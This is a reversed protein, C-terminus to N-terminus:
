RQTRCHQTKLRDASCTVIYYFAPITFMQKYHPTPTINYNWTPSEALIFILDIERTRIHLFAYPLPLQKTIAGPSYVQLLRKFDGQSIHTQRIFLIVTIIITIQQSYYSSSSSSSQSVLARSDIKLPAQSNIRTGHAPITVCISGVPSSLLAYQDQLLSWMRPPTTKHDPTSVPHFFKLLMSMAPYISSVRAALVLNNNPWHTSSSSSWPIKIM